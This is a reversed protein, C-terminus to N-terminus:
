NIKILFEYDHNFPVLSNGAELFFCCCINSNSTNKEKKHGFFVLLTAVLFLMSM